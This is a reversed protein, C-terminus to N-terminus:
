EQSQKPVLSSLEAKQESSLNLKGIVERAPEGDSELGKVMQQLLKTRMNSKPLQLVPLFEPEREFSIPAPFDDIVKTQEQVPLQSIWNLLGPIDRYRWRNIVSSFQDPWEDIPFQAIFNAVADPQYDDSYDPSGAQAAIGNLAAKRLEASSLKEIFRKADSQNQQFLQPAFSTSAEAFKADDIHSLAFKIAGNQDGEFWGHLWSYIHDESLVDSHSEFWRWAAEHDLGAWTGLLADAYEHFQFNESDIHSDIFQAAADPDVQTWEDIVMALHDTLQYERATTPVKLLMEALVPMASPPAAAIMADM